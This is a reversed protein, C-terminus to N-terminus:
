AAEGAAGPSAASPVVGSDPEIFIKTMKPLKERIQAELENIKVEIAEVTLTPDFAVKMALIVDEPGLHMTMIEILARVPPFAKVIAKVKEEEDEPVSEGILLSHTEYSLICAVGALVFGISLTAVGDWLTNGTVHTLGVGVLAILLGILAATDELLVTVVLPDRTERVVQMMRRGRAVTKFERYAVRFSAAELVISVILVAYAWGVAHHHHEGRNLLRHGGEYFSAVAGITFLMVAVIFPWFYLESGRGFQHKRDAPRKALKLGLLLLAQNGTDALSHVGEALMAASGSFFAAVFKAIAIGLNGALAAIVVKKNGGASM